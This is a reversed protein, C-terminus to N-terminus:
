EASLGIESCDRDFSTFHDSDLHRQFADADTYIEYLFFLQSQESDQCVDFIHCDVEKNLSDEAQQLMRERFEEVFQPEIEFHVTVSYM